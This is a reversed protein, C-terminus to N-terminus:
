KKPSEMTKIKATKPKNSVKINPFSAIYIMEVCQIGLTRNKTIKITNAREKKPNNSIVIGLLHTVLDSLSLSFPPSKPANKIARVVTNTEKEQVPGIRPAANTSIADPEELENINKTEINPNALKNQM